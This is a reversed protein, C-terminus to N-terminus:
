CISFGTSFISIAFILLEFLVATSHIKKHVRWKCSSAGKNTAHPFFLLFFNLSINVLDLFYDIFTSGSDLTWLDGTCTGICCWSRYM